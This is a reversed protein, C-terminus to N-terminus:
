EIQNREKKGKELSHKSSSVMTQTKSSINGLNSIIILPIM